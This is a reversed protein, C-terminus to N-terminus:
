TKTKRRLSHLASYQRAALSEFQRQDMTATNSLLIAVQDNRVMTVINLAVGESQACEVYYANPVKPVRSATGAQSGVAGGCFAQGIGKTDQALRLQSPSTGREDVQVVMAVFYLKTNERYGDWGLVASTVRADPDHEAFVRPVLTEYRILDSNPLIESQALPAQIIESQLSANGVAGAIPNPLATFSLGGILGGCVVGGFGFRALRKTVVVSRLDSVDIM